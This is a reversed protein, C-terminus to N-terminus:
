PCLLAECFNAIETQDEGLDDLDLWVGKSTASRKREDKGEKTGASYSVSTEGDTRKKAKTVSAKVGM